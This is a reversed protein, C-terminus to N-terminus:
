PGEDGVVYKQNVCEWEIRFFNWVFRRFVELVEFLFVWAQGSAHRQLHSSLKLSWCLRLAFDMVIAAYYYLPSGYKLEDRLLAYRPAPASALGWDMVVDWIFSYLTNITVAYLWLLQLHRDHQDLVVGEAPALQHQLASFWIVPFSSLYKGFNILQFRNGTARYVLLCQVGRVAYPISAFIPGVNHHLCAPGPTDPFSSVFIAILCCLVSQMDSLLKSMSTLGDATLVDVFQVQGHALASLRAVLFLRMEKFISHRSFVILGVLIAWFMVQTLLQMHPRGMTGFIEYSLYCVLLTGFLIKVGHLIMDVQCEAKRLGLAKRFAIQNAEFGYVNVAWCLMFLIAIGSARFVVPVYVVAQTAFGLVALEPALM